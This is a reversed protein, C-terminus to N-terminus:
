YNTLFNLTIETVEDPIFVDESCIYMTYDPMLLDFAKISLKKDEFLIKQLLEGGNVMIINHLNIRLGRGDLKVLSEKMAWIRYFDEIKKSESLSELYVNEENSLIKKTHKPIIDKVKQLDLGLGRDGYAIAVYDGSHSISFHFDSDKLFPKGYSGYIVKNIKELYGCKQMAIRLLFGAGLSLRAPKESKFKNIQNKRDESILALTKDFLEPDELLNVNMYLIGKM